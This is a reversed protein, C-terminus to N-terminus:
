VKPSEMYMYMGHVYTCEMWRETRGGVVIIGEEKILRLKVYRKMDINQQAEKIWFREAKELDYPNLVPDQHGNERVTEYLKLIRATTNKLLKWKSFREAHIREALSEVEEVVGIFEAKRKLEPVPVGKKVEWRVPWDDEHLKLFESNTKIKIHTQIKYRGM